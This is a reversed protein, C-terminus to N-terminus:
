SFHHKNQSLLITDDVMFHNIDKDLLIQFNNKIIEIIYYDEKFKSKDFTIKFFSTKNTEKYYNSSIEKFNKLKKIEEFSTNKNDVEKVEIKKILGANMFSSLLLIFIIIRIM